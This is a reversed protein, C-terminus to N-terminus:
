SLAPAPNPQHPTKAPEDPGQDLTFPPYEDRMLAVYVTVRFVWRNIGMIFNFLGRQYTGTFLLVLGALLVLLGLLSYELGPSGGVSGEISQGSWLFQGTWGPQGFWASGAGTLVALILLHPLALLWSKVLVLGRSLHEPYAVQLDAPYSTSALTFPPYQDTALASHAYFAVRWNWRLVGVNFDFLSRPYKGTILIVLGSIVTTIIFASWLFVLIILHPIALLWKVLWLGRSLNGDLEGHLWTGTRSGAGTNAGAARAIRQDPGMVTNPLYRVDQGSAQPLRHLDKGARTAGLLTLGVGLLLMLTGAALAILPLFGIQDSHYGARVSTAVGPSADTNMAVVVWEGSHVPIVLEQLDQGHASAIWFTEDTPDSPTSTGPKDDYRVFSPFSSVTEIEARPVDSLYAEVDARAGVGIFMDQGATVPKAQLRVEGLDFPTRALAPEDVVLELPPSVVAYSDTAFSQASSQLYTDAGDRGGAAFAAAGLTIAGIGLLALITGAIIAVLSVM